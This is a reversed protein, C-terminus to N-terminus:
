FNATTQTQLLEGAGQTLLKEYVTQALTAPNDNGSAQNHLLRSGNLTGVRAQLRLGAPILDAHAAVPATCGGGLLSLFARECTVAVRTAEHDCASRVINITEPDDTRCQVAVCGQGVQPLCVDIGIRESVVDQRNLRDLGACALVLADAEGQALKALRTDVNGRIPVFRLDPRLHLLQSVRRPASTAVTAQRPLDAFAGHPSVLADRVDARKCFAAITLDEPDSSPLDKASHVALDITGGLLAAEIERVFVGKGAVQALPVDQRVDGATKIIVIEVNLTPNYDQLLGQVFHAQWLALASGRTGLRLHKM